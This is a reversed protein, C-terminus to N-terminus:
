RLQQKPKIVPLIIKMALARTVFPNPDSAPTRPKIITLEIKPTIINNASLFDRGFEYMRAHAKM